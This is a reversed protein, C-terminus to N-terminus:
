TSKVYSVLDLLIRCVGLDIQAQRHKSFKPMNELMERTFDPGYEQVWLVGEDWM